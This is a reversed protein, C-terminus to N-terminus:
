IKNSSIKVKHFYRKFLLKAQKRFSLTLFPIVEMDNNQSGNNAVKGQFFMLFKIKGCIYLDILYLQFYLNEM